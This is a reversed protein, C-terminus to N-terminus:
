KVTATMTYVTDFPPIQGKYWCGITIGATKANWLSIENNEDNITIEKDPFYLNLGAPVIYSDPQQNEDQRNAYKFNVGNSYYGIYNNQITNNYMGTEPSANNMNWSATASWSTPLYIKTGKNMIYGANIIRNNEYHIDHGTPLNMAANMTRIFQCNYVNVFQTTTANNAQEGDTTIGTGTYHDSDAPYPYAGDVFIDHISLPSGSVGGSNHININDEVSSYNPMNWFYIYSLESGNTFGADNLQLAPAIGTGSTQNYGNRRDTNKILSETIIIKNTVSQDIRLGGTHKLYLHKINIYDAKYAYFGWGRQATGVPKLAQCRMNNVMVKAGTECHVADGSAKVFINELWVSDATQVWIGTGNTNQYNGSYHGGQTIILPTSFAATTDIQAYVFVPLLQLLIIYKM